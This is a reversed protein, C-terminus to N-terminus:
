WGGVHKRREKIKRGGEEIKRKWERGFISGSRAAIEM